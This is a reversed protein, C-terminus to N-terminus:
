RFLSDVGNCWPLPGVQGDRDREANVQANRAIRFPLASKSRNTIAWDMATDRFTFLLTVENDSCSLCDPGLTRVDSLSRPVLFGPISTGGSAGIGNSNFQKGHIGLSTVKGDGNIEIEYAPMSVKRSATQQQVEIM